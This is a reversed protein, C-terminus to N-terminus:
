GEKRLRFAEAFTKLAANAARAAVLRIMTVPRENYLGLLQSVKKDLEPTHPGHRYTLSPGRVVTLLGRSELADLQLGITQPQTQVERALAASSWEKERNVALIRLIELQDVSEINQEIFRAVEDPLPEM